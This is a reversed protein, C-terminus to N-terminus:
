KGHLERTLVDRLADVRQIRHTADTVELILEREFAGASQLITTLDARVCALSRLMRTILDRYAGPTLDRKGLEEKLADFKAAEVNMSRTLMAIRRRVVEVRYSRAIDPVIADATDFSKGAAAYKAKAAEPDTLELKRAEEMAGRGARIADKAQDRLAAELVAPRALSAPGPEVAPASPGLLMAVPPYPESLVYMGDPHEALITAVAAYRVSDPPPCRSALTEFAKQAKAFQRSRLLCHAQMDAVIQRQRSDKVVESLDALLSELAEDDRGADFRGRALDLAASSDTWKGDV